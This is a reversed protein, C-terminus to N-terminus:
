SAYQRMLRRYHSLMAKAVTIEEPTLAGIDVRGPDEDEDDFLGLARILDNQHVGLATALRPLDTAVIRAGGTEYARYGEESLGLQDAVDKRTLRMRDRVGRLRQGMVRADDYIKLRAM